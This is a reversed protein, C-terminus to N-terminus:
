LLVVQVEELEQVRNVVDVCRESEIMNGTLTSKCLLNRRTKILERKFYASRNILKSELVNCLSNSQNVERLVDNVDYKRNEIFIHITLKAVSFKNGHHLVTQQPAKLLWLVGSKHLEHM